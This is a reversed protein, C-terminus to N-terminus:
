FNNSFTLKIEPRRLRRAIETKDFAGGRNDEYIFRTRDFEATNINNVELQIKVGFFQSTEIFVRLRNNGGFTQKEDVFYNTDVFHGQYEIGWALKRETIDQRLLFNLWRPTYGNITRATNIISDDFKSDRYIHTIEILGNELLFDLPLNLDTTIGWFKASGANGVGQGGSPLLIQELIDKKWQYFTRIKLSGRDNFSWDYTAAFETTQDPKLDPNGSTTRDDSAQSSAAFDGFDLQGVRRELELALQTKEDLEYTASFRPKVFKFRQKQEGDGSVQIKSLEFTLGGELILNKAAAYNFTYFAEGRTEEVQTDGGNLVQPLDNQFFVSNSTLKNKAIELGFEPKFKSQTVKGFTTRAITESGRSNQSFDSNFDTSNDQTQFLFNNKFENDEVLGLGIVRWKWESFTENWDVGFEAMKFKSDINLRWFEDPLNGNVLGGDFIDRQTNQAYQDGGIRANLTLKGEGFQRIGEANIFGFETLETLKEKALSILRGGADLTEIDATRYGPGAGIDIDFASDWKGITTALAAELNPQPSGKPAWRQKLAWRGTTGSTIRIVNAVIAQGSAEGSSIGGRLIEIRDVQTAPIRLLSSKLGGSKSTPRVGDVLVNGANGGFGRASSGSDFNFGPLRDIMELANQPLYQEFFSAPYTLNGNVSKQLEDLPIEEAHIPLSLGILSAGLPLCLFGKHVKKIRDNIQQLPTILLAAL